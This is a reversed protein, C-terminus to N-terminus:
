STSTKGASRINTDLAHTRCADEFAKVAAPTTRLLEAIQGRDLGQPRVLNKINMDPADDRRRKFPNRM